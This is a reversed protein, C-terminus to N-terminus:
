SAAVYTALVLLALLAGGLTDPHHKRLVPQAAVIVLVIALLNLMGLGVEKWSKRMVGGIHTRVGFPSVLNWCEEADEGLRSLYAKTKAAGILSFRDISVTSSFRDPWISQRFDHIIAIESIFKM